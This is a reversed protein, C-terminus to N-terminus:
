KYEIFVVYDENIQKLTNGDKDQCLYWRKNRDDDYAMIKFYYEGISIAEKPLSPKERCFVWGGGHIFIEKIEM